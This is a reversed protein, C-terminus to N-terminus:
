ADRWKAAEAVTAPRGWYWRPEGDNLRLRVRLPEVAEANNEVARRFRTADRGAVRERLDAEEILEGDGLAAVARKVAALVDFRERIAALTVVRGSATKVTPKDARPSPGKAAIGQRALEARVEATPVRWARLANRLREVPWDPHNQVYRKVAAKGGDNM